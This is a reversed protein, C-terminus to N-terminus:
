FFVHWRSRHMGIGLGFNGHLLHQFGETPRTGPLHCAQAVEIRDASVGAPLDTFVRHSNRVIQEREDGLHRRSAAFPQADETLVIGGRIAGSDAVIQMHHIQGFGM